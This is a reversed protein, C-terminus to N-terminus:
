FESAVLNEDATQRFLVFHSGLPLFQDPCRSPQESERQRLSKGVRKCCLFRMVRTGKPASSSEVTQAATLACSAVTWVGATFLAAVVSDNAPMNVLWM